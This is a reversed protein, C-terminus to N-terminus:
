GVSWRPWQKRNTTQVVAATHCDPISHLGRHVLLWVSFSLDDFRAPQDWLSQTILFRFRCDMEIERLRHHYRVWWSWQGCITHVQPTIDRKVYQEFKRRLSIPMRENAARSSFQNRNRRFSWHFKFKGSITESLCFFFRQKNPKEERKLEIALVLITAWHLHVFFYLIELSLITSENNTNQRRNFM